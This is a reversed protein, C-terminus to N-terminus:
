TPPVAMEPHRGADYALARELVSRGEDCIPPGHAFCLVQVPLHDIIRRVSARTREPEDQYESAVFTPQGSGDHTLVDSLFIVSRPRDLWLAYMAETPGPTHFPTLGGPLSEGATYRYDPEEELDGPTPSVGPGEPAFVPVHFLKRYRWASRQHNAATLVIGKIQGLRRLEAEGVPLPDILTVQGQSVVAYADSESGGIRDDHVRWRLVTPIVRVIKHAHATPETM